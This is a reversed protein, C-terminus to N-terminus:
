EQSQREKGGHAMGSAEQKEVADEMKCCKVTNGKMKFLVTHPLSVAFSNGSTECGRRQRTCKQATGLFM